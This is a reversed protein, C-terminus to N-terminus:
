VATEDNNGVGRMVTIGTYFIKHRFKDVFTGGLAQINRADILDIPRRKPDNFVLICYATPLLRYATPLLRFASPPICFASHLLCRASPLLCLMSRRLYSSMRREAGKM